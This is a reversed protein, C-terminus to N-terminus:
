LPLHLEPERTWLRHGAMADIFGQTVARSVKPAVITADDAPNPDDTGGVPVYAAELLGVGEGTACIAKCHKFAERVFDVADAELAWQAAQEGGAVYVADFLVSSTTLISFPPTFTEGNDAKIDGLEPAVLLGLAGEARLARIMSAVGEGDFQPAVLIAVKRTAIPGPVYGAMSLAPSVIDRDVLQRHQFAEPDGDAPVSLNPPPAKRAPPPKIGLGKAVATALTADVQALHGVMRERIAPTEVKGLEFRLAKILHQKEPESQSHFFMRAQSYHDFFSAGRERVKAGTTPEPFTVYGGAARRAQAPFNDGLSNPQYSVRGRNIEQRMFGDRQNNHAPAIPRNIPIEHFNPGGLRLLQTDTYSFLRGQLLPDNTFDIGPV